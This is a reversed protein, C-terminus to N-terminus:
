YDSSNRSIDIYFTLFGAIWKQPIILLRWAENLSLEKFQYCNAYYLVIFKRRLGTHKELPELTSSYFKTQATSNTWSICVNDSLTYTCSIFLLIISVFLQIVIVNGKMKIIDFEGKIQHSNQAEM